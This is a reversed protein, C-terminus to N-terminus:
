NMSNKAGYICNTLVGEFIEVGVRRVRSYETVQLIYTQIKVTKIAVNSLFDDYNILFKIALNIWLKKSSIPQSCFFLWKRCIILNSFMHCSMQANSCSLIWYLQNQLFKVVIQSQYFKFNCNWCIVDEQWSEKALTHSVIQM